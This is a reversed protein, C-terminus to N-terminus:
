PVAVIPEIKHPEYLAIKKKLRLSQLSPQPLFHLECGFKPDFVITIRHLDASIRCIYLISTFSAQLSETDISDIQIILVSDVLTHRDFDCNTEVEECLRERETTLNM